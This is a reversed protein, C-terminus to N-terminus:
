WIDPHQMYCSMPKDLTIYLDREPMIGDDDDNFVLRSAVISSLLIDGLEPEKNGWKM